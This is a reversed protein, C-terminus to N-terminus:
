FLNQASFFGSGIQHDSVDWASVNVALDLLVKLFIVFVMPIIESKGHVFLLWFSGIFGITEDIESVNQEYVIEDPVFFIIM